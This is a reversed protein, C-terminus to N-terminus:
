VGAGAPSISPGCPISASPVSEDVSASPVDGFEIVINTEPPAAKDSLMGGAQLLAIAARTKANANTDQQVVDLLAKYAIQMDGRLRRKLDANAADIEENLSAVFQPDNNMWNSVTIHSIGAKAAADQQSLGAALYTMVIKRIAKSVRM